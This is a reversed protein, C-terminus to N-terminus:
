PLFPAVLRCTTLFLHVTERALNRHDGARAGADAPCRGLQEGRFTGLDDHRLDVRCQALRGRALGAGVGAKHVRVHGVFLADLPHHLLGPVSEAVDVDQQIAGTAGQALVLRHGFDIRRDPVVGHVEIQLPREQAAPVDDGHHELLAFAAHDVERRHHGQAAVVDSM